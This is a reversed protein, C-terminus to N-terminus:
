SRAAFHLCCRLFIFKTIAIKSTVWPASTCNSPVCAARPSCVQFIWPARLSQRLSVWWVRGGTSGKGGGYERRPAEWRGFSGDEQRDVSSSSPMARRGGARGEGGEEGEGGLLHLISQFHFHSLSLSFPFESYRASLGGEGLFFGFQIKRFFGNFFM